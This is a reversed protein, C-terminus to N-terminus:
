DKKLISKSLNIDNPNIEIIRLKIAVDNGYMLSFLQLPSCDNLKKRKYSNIHSMMININDQVLNDFSSGQPLIRRIFEHNVECAGKQDSRGAECYFIKTRQENVIKSFEIESPNSFETGNDTLILPFMKKFLELGLVNELMDFIDIVSQADNHDRIFALMFSCNVFHLTLLVKGSKVGEVTDMEVINTDPHEEIYNLYDSYKRGELCKKDIKYYTKRKNRSRYRVKRSLDLNSINLIGADVLNYIERESCIISNKNNVVAQHISQKQEKVLPTLINNLSEIEKENYTIGTRSETLTEKYETQSYSADYFQKGLTCTSRKECGNCVYPPKSLKPCIEKKYHECNNQNCKTGNIRFPCNKRNICDFFPRGVAGTNKYIIHNKIEKSITTCDKGLNRGIEKFSLNERLGKEIELREDFSLHKNKMINLRKEISYAGDLQM